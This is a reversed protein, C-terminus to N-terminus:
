TSGHVDAWCPPIITDPCDLNASTFRCSLPASMQLVLTFGSKTQCLLMLSELVSDKFHCRFKKMENWQNSRKTCCEIWYNVEERVYLKAMQTLSHVKVSVIVKIYREVGPSPVCSVTWTNMICVPFSLEFSFICQNFKCICLLKVHFCQVVFWVWSVLQRWVSIM